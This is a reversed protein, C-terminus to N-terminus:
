RGGRYKPDTGQGFRVPACGSVQRGGLDPAKKTSWVTGVVKALFMAQLYDYRLEPNRTELKPEFTSEAIRNPDSTM